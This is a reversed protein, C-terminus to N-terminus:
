PPSWARSIPWILSHSVAQYPTSAGHAVAMGCGIIGSMIRPRPDVMGPVICGPLMSGAEPIGIVPAPDTM